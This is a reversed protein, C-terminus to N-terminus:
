RIQVVWVLFQNDILVQVVGCSWGEDMLMM